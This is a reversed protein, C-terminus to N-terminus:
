PQPQRSTGYIYHDHNQALDPIGSTVAEQDIGFAPDDQVRILEVRVSTGGPLESGNQLEVKGNKVMGLYTM